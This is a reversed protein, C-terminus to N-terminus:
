RRAVSPRTCQRRSQRAIATTPMKPAARGNGSNEKPAVRNDAPTSAIMLAVTGSHPATIARRQSPSRIDGMAM